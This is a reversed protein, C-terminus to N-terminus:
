DMKCANMVTSSYGLRVNPFKLAVNSTALIIAYFLYKHTCLLTRCGKSSTKNNLHILAGVPHAIFSALNFKKFLSFKPRSKPEDKRRNNLVLCIHVFKLPAMIKFAINAVLLSSEFTSNLTFYIKIPDLIHIISFKKFITLKVFILNRDHSNKDFWYLSSKYM